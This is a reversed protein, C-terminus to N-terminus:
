DAGWNDWNNQNYFQDNSKPDTTETSPNTDENIPLTDLHGNGDKGYISVTNFTQQMLEETNYVTTEPAVYIQKKANEM